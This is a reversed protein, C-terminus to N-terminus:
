GSLPLLDCSACIFGAGYRSYDNVDIVTYRRGNWTIIDADIGPAGNTLRFVTNVLISGSITSGTALRALEKARDATVVGIFPTMCALNVAIGDEGVSQRQRACFLQDAFDPDSLLDSVDLLPM